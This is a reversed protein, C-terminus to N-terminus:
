WREVHVTEDLPRRTRPREERRRNSEPAADSDDHRGVAIGAMLRYHDPVGLAASVADHDYGAFQHADLDLDRAQITLHAAAQGLDYYAYDGTDFFDEEGPAAGIRAATLIVVSAAPVWSSNGRSLHEVFIRHGEGGRRLVIFQWPQSNGFSPSWRAAQLLADLEAASVEHEADFASPSWRTSLPEALVEAGQGPAPRTFTTTTESM